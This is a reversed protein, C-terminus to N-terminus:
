AINNFYNNAKANYIYLAKILDKLEDTREQTTERALVNYCYTLPSYQVSYNNSDGVSICVTFDDDLNQAAIGSIM